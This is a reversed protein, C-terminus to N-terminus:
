GLRDDTATRFQLAPGVGWIAKGPKSPAFFGEYLIDGLGNVRDQGPALAPNSLVPVILRNILNLEGLNVPYVPQINLTHQQKDLSGTNFTSTFQFPLTILDAVPNALKAQLDEEQATAPQYVLVLAALALSSAAPTAHSRQERVIM